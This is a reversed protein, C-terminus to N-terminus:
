KLFDYSGLSLAFLDHYKPNWCINTVNKKRQKENSFRWIPLLHGESKGAEVNEGDSWYYRYDHYKEEQDNQVVMREM